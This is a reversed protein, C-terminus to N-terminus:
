ERIYSNRKSSLWQHILFTKVTLTIMNEWSIGKLGVHGMMMTQKFSIVCHSLEKWQGVFSCSKPVNPLFSLLPLLPFWKVCGKNRIIFWWVRYVPWILEEAQHLRVDDLSQISLNIPNVCWLTSMIYYQQKGDGSLGFVESLHTQIATTLKM